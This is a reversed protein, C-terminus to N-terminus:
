FFTSAFFIVPRTITRKRIAPIDPILV